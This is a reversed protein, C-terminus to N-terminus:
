SPYLPAISFIAQDEGDLRARAQESEAVNFATLADDYPGQYSPSLGHGPSCVVIHPRELDEVDARVIANAVLELLDLRRLRPQTENEM